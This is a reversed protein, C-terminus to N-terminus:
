PSSQALTWLKEVNHPLTRGRSPTYIHVRRCKGKNETRSNLLKYSLVNRVQLAKNIEYGALTLIVHWM